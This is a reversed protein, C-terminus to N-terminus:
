KDDGKFLDQYKGFTVYTTNPLVITNDDFIAVIAGYGNEDTGFLGNLIGLLGVQYVGERPEDCQVTPHDAFQESCSVRNEVLAGMAVYDIKALENLFDIVEDLTVSDKIM